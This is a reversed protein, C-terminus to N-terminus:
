TFYSGGSASACFENQLEDSAPGIGQSIGQEQSIGSDLTGRGEHGRRPSEVQWKAEDADHAMEPWEAAGPPARRDPNRPRERCLASNRGGAAMLWALSAVMGPLAPPDLQEAVVQLRALKSSLM